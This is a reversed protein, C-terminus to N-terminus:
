ASMQKAAAHDEYIALPQLLHLDIGFKAVRLAAKPAIVIAHRHMDAQRAIGVRGLMLHFQHDLLLHEGGTM